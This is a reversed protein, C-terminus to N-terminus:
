VFLAVSRLEKAEEVDHNSHLGPWSVQGSAVLEVNRNM